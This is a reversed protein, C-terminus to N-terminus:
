RRLSQRTTRREAKHAYMLRDARSAAERISGDKERHAAGISVEIGGSAFASELRARLEEASKGDTEVALVAFEDGGLRAGVDHERIIGRLADAARRLLADGASHGEEDNVRKLGDVDMIFVTAGHGYRASRREEREILQDWGRRNFLGTLEDVLAATEAREARRVLEEAELDKSLITSLIRAATMLSPGDGRATPAVPKMRIACLVGYLQDKVVLPAGAYATVPRTKMAGAQTVGLADFGGEFAFGAREGNALQARSAPLLQLADGRKFPATGRLHTVVWEDMRLQTIFCADMATLELVLAIISEAAEDFNAFDGFETSVDSPISPKTM